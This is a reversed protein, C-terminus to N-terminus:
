RKKEDRVLEFRTMFLYSTTAFRDVYEFSKEPTGTFAGTEYGVYKFETGGKPEKGGSLLLVVNTALKRGNVARVRLLTHGEYVKSVKSPDEVITGEITIIDGLPHGLHGIIDSEQLEKLDISKRNKTPEEAHTESACGVAGITVILLAVM